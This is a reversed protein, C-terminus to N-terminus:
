GAQDHPPHSPGDRQTSEAPLPATASEVWADRLDLVAGVPRELVGKVWPRQLVTTVPHYLPIVAAADLLLREAEALAELRSPDEGAARAKRILVDYELNFWQVENFPSTTTWNSLFSLADDYEAGVLSLALMYEGERTRELLTVFPVAELQVTLGPLAEELMAKVAQGNQATLTSDGTLLELTLSTTGALELANSWHERAASLRRSGVSEGAVTRFQQGPGAAIVPPVMGAAPEADGVLRQVLAQRDLALSIAQRLNPDQLETRRQNLALYWTIPQTVTYVEGHARYQTALQGPVVTWDLAGAEYLQVAAFGDPVTRFTVRDLRVEPAAWYAPNRTLVLGEGPTWAELQFPGNYRMTAPFQGYQEGHLEVLDQRVPYYTPFATLSLWQLTPEVLTVKLTKEDPTEIAVQERLEAAKQAFEPVEIPLINYEQAGRIYYLQHAYAASRAPDLVRLWAYKFDQSTLPQGDSWRAGEQLHFTYTVGDEAVDWSAAAAPQPTGDPGIRVLGEMVNGLITFAAQSATITSDLTQPEAPVGIALEPLRQPAPAVAPASEPVPQFLSLGAVLSITLVTNVLRRGSRAM